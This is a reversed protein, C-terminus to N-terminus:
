THQAQDTARSNDASPVLCARLHWAVVMLALQASLLLKEVATSKWGRQNAYRLFATLAFGSQLPRCYTRPPEMSQMKSCHTSPEVAPSVGAAAARANYHLLRRHIGTRALLTPLVALVFILDPDATGGM